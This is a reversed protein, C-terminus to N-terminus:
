AVLYIGLVLACFAACWAQFILRLVLPAHRLEMFYVGIYRVKVFAVTATTHDDLGLGHNAGLWWSLGTAVVLLAWVPAVATHALVRM